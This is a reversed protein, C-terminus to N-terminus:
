FHGDLAAGANIAAERVTQLFEDLSHEMRLSPGVIGLAGYVRGTPDFVPCGISVIGPDSEQNDMSWGRQLVLEMDAMFRAIAAPRDDVPLEGIARSLIEEREAQPLYPLVAKGSARQNERGSLGLYLGGVKLAQSGEVLVRVVLAGNEVVSLYATEGTGAALHHVIDNLGDQVPFKRRYQSYLAAVRNGLHLTSSADRHLYGRASLTHFLHYCTTINLQLEDAMLKITPPEASNAVFELVSLAREVTQLGPQKRQLPETAM